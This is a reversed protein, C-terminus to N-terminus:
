GDVDSSYAYWPRGNRRENGFEFVYRHSPDRLICAPQSEESFIEVDDGIVLGQRRGSRLSEDDAVEIIEDRQCQPRAAVGLRKGRVSRHARDPQCRDLGIDVGVEIIAIQVRRHDRGAIAHRHAIQVLQELALADGVRLEYESLAQRAGITKQSVRQMRPARDARDGEFEAEIIQRVEVPRKASAVVSCWGLYPFARPRFLTGSVPEANPRPGCWFRGRWFAVFAISGFRFRLLFLSAPRYGGARNPRKPLERSALYITRSIAHCRDTTPAPFRRM